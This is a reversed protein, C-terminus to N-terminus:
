SNTAEIGARNAQRDYFEQTLQYRRRRHTCLEEPTTRVQRSGAPHPGRRSKMPKSPCLDKLPCERCHEEDFVMTLKGTEPDFTQERPAHGQPCRSAAPDDPVV